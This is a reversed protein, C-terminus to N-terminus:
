EKILIVEDRGCNPCRFLHPCKHKSYTDEFGDELKMLDIEMYPSYDDYYDMLKGSELMPNGCDKCILHIMRLGNCIPCIPM